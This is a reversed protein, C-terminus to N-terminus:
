SAKQQNYKEKFIADIKEAISQIVGKKFPSDLGASIAVSHVNTKVYPSEIIDMYAEFQRDIGEKEGIEWLQLM